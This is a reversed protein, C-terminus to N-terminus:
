AAAASCDFLNREICDLALFTETNTEVLRGSGGLGARHEIPVPCSASAATALLHAIVDGGAVPM